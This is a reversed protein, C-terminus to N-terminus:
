DIRELDEDYSSEIKAMLKSYFEEGNKIAVKDGHPVVLMIDCWSNGEDWYVVDVDQGEVMWVREGFEEMKKHYGKGGIAESLIESEVSVM